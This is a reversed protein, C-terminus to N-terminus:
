GVPTPERAADVAAARPLPAAVRGLAVGLLWFTLGLEGVVSPVAVVALFLDAHAAYDVLLTRAVADAVYAAGAVPLVVALFAGARTSRATSRALLVGLLVLHLGFAALGLVWAHDFAQLALLVHEDAAEPDRALLLAVHLLVLASGLVVTYTLRAWAALLSLDAHVGRLLVHLAWAIAVDVVFIALFALEGLRYATEGALLDARTAAADEPQLVAGVALFNGFIALVFIAAYGAFAWRAGARPSTTTAQTTTRTTNATM